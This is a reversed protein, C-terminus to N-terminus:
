RHRTENQFSSESCRKLGIDIRARPSGLLFLLGDAARVVEEFSWDEKM